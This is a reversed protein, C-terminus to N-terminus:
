GLKGELFTEVPESDACEVVGFVAVVGHSVFFFNFFQLLFDFLDLRFEFAGELVSEGLVEQAPVQTKALSKKGPKYTGSGDSLLRYDEHEREEFGESLEEFFYFGGFFAEL